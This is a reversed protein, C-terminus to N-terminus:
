QQDAQAKIQAAQEEKMDARLDLKFEKLDQEMRSWDYVGPLLMKTIIYKFYKDKIRPDSQTNEGEIVKIMFEAMQDANSIM